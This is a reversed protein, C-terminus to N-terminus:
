MDGYCFSAGAIVQAGSLLPKKTVKVHISVPQIFTKKIIQYIEHTLHELLHFSRPTIERAIRQILSDYCDTDNLQDTLCAKPPAQFDIDIDLLVTQPQSREKESAGLFLNLELQYLTIRTKNKMM